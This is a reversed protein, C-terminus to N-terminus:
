HLYFMSPVINELLITDKEWHKGMGRRPLVSYDPLPMPFFGPVHNNHSTAIVQVLWSFFLNDSREWQSVAGLVPNTYFQLLNEAMGSM